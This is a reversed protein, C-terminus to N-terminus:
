KPEEIETIVVKNLEKGLYYVLNILQEMTLDSGSIQRYCPTDCYHGLCGIRQKRPFYAVPCRDPGAVGFEDEKNLCEDRCKECVFFGKLTLKADTLKSDIVNLKTDM